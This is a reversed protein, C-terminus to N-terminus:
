GKGVLTKLINKIASPHIEIIGALIASTFMVSFIFSLTFLLGIFKLPTLNQSPKFRDFFRSLSTGSMADSRLDSIDDYSGRELDDRPSLPPLSDANSAFENSNGVNPRPPLRDDPHM